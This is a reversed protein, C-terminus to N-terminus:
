LRNLPLYMYSYKGLPLTKMTYEDPLLESLVMCLLVLPITVRFRMVLRPWQKMRFLANKGKLLLTLYILRLYEIAKERLTEPQQVPKQQEAEHDLMSPQRMLQAHLPSRKIWSNFKEVSEVSPEQDAEFIAQWEKAEAIIKPNIAFRNTTDIQENSSTTSKGKM